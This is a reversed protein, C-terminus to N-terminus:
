AALVLRLTSAPEFKISGGMAHAERIAELAASTLTLDDRLLPMRRKDWVYGDSDRTTTLYVM